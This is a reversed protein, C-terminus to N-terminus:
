VLCWREYINDFVNRVREWRLVYNLFPNFWLFRLLPVILVFLFLTVYRRVVFLANLFSDVNM